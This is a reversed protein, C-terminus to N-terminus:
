KKANPTSVKAQISPGELDDFFFTEETNMYPNFMLTIQNIASEPTKSGPPIQSFKFELIEWKGTVATIAQYQSHTGEPYANGTSQGLHIEVLTGVPATSFVKLKIKKPMGTYTAYAAVDSLTGYFDMKINDYRQKSRTYKACTRSDNIQDPKPNAATSDLKGAKKLDYRIKCNGEFNDYIEQSYTAMSVFM